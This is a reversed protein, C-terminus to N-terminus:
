CSLRAQNDDQDYFSLNTLAAVTNLVVEEEGPAELEYRRLLAALAAALPPRAALLAGLDPEIALNAVLRLLKVLVDERSTEREQRRFLPM